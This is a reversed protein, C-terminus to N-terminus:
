QKAAAPALLEDVPEDGEGKEPKEEAPNEDAPKEEPDSGEPEHAM